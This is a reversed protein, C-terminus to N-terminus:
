SWGAVILSLGATFGAGLLAVYGGYYRRLRHLLLGLVGFAAGVTLTRSGRARASEALWDAAPVGARGAEAAYVKFPVGNWPQHRVAAASEVALEHRVQARMRDTTLPAPLQLGTNALQLALLGGALSGALAAISLRLAARPVAVCVIGLLLEPMLPWSLAEAFAWAVALTLGWRSRAM